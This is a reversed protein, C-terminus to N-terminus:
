FRNKLDMFRSFLIYFKSRLLVVVSIDKFLNAFYEFDYLIGRKSIYKYLYDIFLLCFIEQLYSSFRIIEVIEKIGTCITFVLVLFLFFDIKRANCGILIQRLYIPVLLFYGEVSMEMIEKCCVKVERKIELIWLSDGM